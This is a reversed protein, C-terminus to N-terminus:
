ENKVYEQREKHARWDVHIVNLHQYLNVFSMNSRELSERLVTDCHMYGLRYDKDFHQLPEKFIWCDQSREALIPPCSEDYFERSEQLEGHKALDKRSCGYLVNDPWHDLTRLKQLTSDFYIDSNALVKIATPESYLSFDYWHKYTLREQIPQIVLKSSFVDVFTSSQEVLLVVQDIHPNSLNRYLCYLNSCLVEPVAAFFQTYLVVRTPPVTATFSLMRDNQEAYQQDYALKEKENKFKGHNYNVYHNYLRQRDTLKDKLQELYSETSPYMRAYFVEDFDSPIHQSDYPALEHKQQAQWEQANKHLGQKQGHNAYHHLLRGRRTLPSTHWYGKVQPYQSEYFEDDFEAGYEFELQEGLQLYPDDPM